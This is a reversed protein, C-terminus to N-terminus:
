DAASVLGAVREADWTHHVAEHAANRGMDLLDREGWSFTAERQWERETVAELLVALTDCARDIDDTVVAVRGDLYDAEEAREDPDFFAIDPTGEDRMRELADIMWALVDAIHGGYEIVSWTGPDPRDRLDRDTLAAVTRRWREASARTVEALTAGGEHEAFDMGCQECSWDETRRGPRGTM